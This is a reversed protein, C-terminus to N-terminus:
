PTMFPEVEGWNKSSRSPPTFAENVPTESCNSSSQQAGDPPNDLEGGSDACLSVCHNVPQEGSVQSRDSLWPINIWFLEFQPICSGLHVSAVCQRNTIRIVRWWVLTGTCFVRCLDTGTIMRWGLVGLWGEDHRRKTRELERWLSVGSANLGVLGAVFLCGSVLPMLTRLSPGRKVGGACSEWLHEAVSVTTLSSNSRPCTLCSVCWQLTLTRAQVCRCHWSWHVWVCVVVDRGTDFQPPFQKAGSFDHSM